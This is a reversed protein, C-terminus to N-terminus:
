ARVQILRGGPIIAIKASANAIMILQNVTLNGTITFQGFGSLTLNGAGLNTNTSLTCNDAWNINWNGSGSYTCTDTAGGGGEGISYNSWSTVNFVVIAGSLITLNICVPSSTSNCRVGDRLMVPLTYSPVNYITINASVNLSTQNSNVYVSNNNLTINKIIDGTGDTVLTTFKITANENYVNLFINTATGGTKAGIAGISTTGKVIQSTSVYANSNTM